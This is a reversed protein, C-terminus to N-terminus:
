GEVKRWGSRIESHLGSLSVREFWDDPYDGGNAAKIRDCVANWEEPSRTSKLDAIDKDTLM